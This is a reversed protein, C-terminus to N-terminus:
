ERDKKIWDWCSKPLWGQRSTLDVKSILFTDSETMFPKLRDYWKQPTSTTYVIWCNPAYRLWDLALDFTKELEQVKQKSRWNIGIHLFFGSV